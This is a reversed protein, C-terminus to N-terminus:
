EPPGPLYPINGATIIFFGAIQAIIEIERVHREAGVRL